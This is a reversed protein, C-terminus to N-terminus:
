RFFSQFRIPSVVCSSYNSITTCTDGWDRIVHRVEAPEPESELQPPMPVFGYLKAYKGATYNGFWLLWLVCVFAFLAWGAYLM